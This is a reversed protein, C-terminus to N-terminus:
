ALPRLLALVVFRDLQHVLLALHERADRRAYRRQGAHRRQRDLHPIERRDVGCAGGAFGLARLCADAAQHGPHRSLRDRGEDLVRAAQQLGGGRADSQEEARAEGRAPQPPHRHPTAPLAAGHGFRRVRGLRRGAHLLPRLRAGDDARRLAPRDAPHHLAEAGAPVLAHLGAALARDRHLARHAAPHDQSVRVGLGALRALDAAAARRGQALARPHFAPRHRRDAAHVPPLQQAQSGVAALRLRHALIRRHGAHLRPKRGHVVAALPPEDPWRTRALRERLDTIAADPIHLTFPKM